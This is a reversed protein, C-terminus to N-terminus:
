MGVAQLGEMIGDHETLIQNESFQWIHAADNPCADACDGCGKCIAQNVMSVRRWENFDIAGYTCQKICELCGQCADQDIWAMTIPIEAKGQIALELAKAAAGSAQAVTDPIDKPGQCAGALFIGSTASNLPGLKPHSERFFGDKDQNVGFIKAVEATDKRAEIAACLIVMDVPIRIQRNMLTDEGIVILRGEEQAKIPRDTIESPKGRFFIIGEEQCRKYFEEYGKGFCRMDVYFDYVKVHHGIKDKLLHGYKLAYMCCVRSCYEHYNEDRSGVCHIIGVSEPPMTFGGKEDRMLIKGDTPGTANNLREFELSTFVNPYRGYGYEKMPTTDMIDFGTALIISGVEIEKEEPEMFHDIADAECIKVCEMCESCVGCNLCRRAEQRAVEESFGLDVENFSTVREEPEQYRSLVRSETGLGEPIECWDRGPPNQAKVQEAYHILDKGNIYRDMAEVVMHGGTVAEIVTAPGSVADGAAFVHPINTQMTEPNVDLTGWRSISLGQLGKLWDLDPRQGIAPIVTDCEIVFESGEVPVPRRRGTADPEGLETEICEFGTVKGNAGHIKVPATLYHIKVDEELAGEIEEPYAPMEKRSRRYVVTVEECGLRRATRAADIAVNGGGIIMVRNGPKRRDGLNVDRLFDVADLVGEFDDEGPIDTKISSHAGVALFIAKFGQKELDSLTFDAGLAQGTRTEIGLRLIYNIEKDLVEPPLRYDPIGVRLMGGLVSLSEFITVQYGKLRLYYAATLGAPGSGVIAVKEPRNEIEPLPLEDLDLRDAAFRKLNRIAIAEDKELRRCEAECPHPCVRGLVGPLPLREMILQIAEKYKGQGILQVYGQVNVGAPCTIVCPARDKKDIAFTIPVAQPFSRYIAKREMLGEDWESPRTVPCVTSCEGCGTCVGEKVYQTERHVKVRYNGVFGSIEKVESGTLLEINAHQGVSVMKPTGICAACDLTPFTKDYQLMHGGITTQREVLYAKHGAEAVDLAAQMGAIGGGVVLVDPHVSVERATLTRHYKTRYIAASTLTRAKVTAEAPDETIWAVQELIPAMQLHHDELGANRCAEQFRKEYQEPSCAAVVVRNLGLVRIDKEIMELGQPQCMNKHSRAVVVEPQRRAFDVIEDVSVKNTINNGCHCIYCGIRTFKGMDTEVPEPMERSLAEQRERMTREVTSMFEEETFPKALYDSVGARLAEVASSVNSYGTIVIVETEPSKEKVRRIVEMGNMDPLRLDAVLLDFDKHGLADIAGQGTMALDVAYGEEELVMRLGEAVSSEDEMLLVHSRAGELHKVKMWAEAAEGPELIENNITEQRVELAKEVKSIFEEESFPKPLYDVVGTKMAEVASSPSAYGTIVIVETEPREDKMQRIVEMGDMDPLRLDAVMLDFDKSRMNDLASQGSMAWDVGYGGEELVMQLGQAVSSDDEMILIQPQDVYEDSMIEDVQSM